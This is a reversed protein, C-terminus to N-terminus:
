HVELKSGPRFDMELLNKASSVGSEMRNRPNDFSRQTLMDQPQIHHVQTKETHVHTMGRLQDGSTNCSEPLHRRLSTRPPRKSNEADGRVQDGHGGNTTEPKVRFQPDNECFLTLYRIIKLGIEESISETYPNDRYILEAILAKCNAKVPSDRSVTELSSTGDPLYTNDGAPTYQSHKNYFGLTEAV